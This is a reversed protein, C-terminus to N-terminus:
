KVRFARRYGSVGRIAEAIDRKENEQLMKVQKPVAAQSIHFPLINEVEKPNLKVQYTAQITQPVNFPKGRYSKHSANAYRIYIKDILLEIVLDYSAINLYGAKAVKELAGLAKTFDSLYTKLSEVASPADQSYPPSKFSTTDPIPLAQILANRGYPSIDLGHLFGHMYCCWTNAAECDEANDEYLNQLTNLKDRQTAIFGSHASVLNKFPTGFRTPVYAMKNVANVGPLEDELQLEAKLVNLIDADGNSNLHESKLCHSLVDKYLKSFKVPTPETMPSSFRRLVQAHNRNKEVAEKYKNLAYADIIRATSIAYEYKALTMERQASLYLHYGSLDRATGVSDELGVIVGKGHTLQAILEEWNQPKGIPTFRFANDTLSKDTMIKTQPSFDKVTQQLTSIDIASGQPNKLEIHRMWHARAMPDTEIKRLLSMPLEIDSFMFYASEIAENLEIYPRPLTVKNFYGNEYDDIFTFTYNIGDADVLNSAIDKSRYRYIYWAKKNNDATASIDFVGEVKANTALIYVFGDRLCRLDYDDDAQPIGEPLKPVKGSHKIKEFANNTLTLRAPYIRIGKQCPAVVQKAPIAQPKYPKQPQQKNIKKKDSM